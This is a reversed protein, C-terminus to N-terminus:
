IYLYDYLFVEGKPRLHDIKTPKPPNLPTITPIINRTIMQCGHPRISNLMILHEDPTLPDYILSFHRFITFYPRIQYLDAM